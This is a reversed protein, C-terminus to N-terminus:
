TGRVRYHLAICASQKALQRLMWTLKHRIIYHNIFASNDSSKSDNLLNQQQIWSLNINLWMVVPLHCSIVLVCAQQLAYVDFGVWGLWQCLKYAGCVQVSVSRARSICCKGTLQLGIMMMMWSTWPSVVRSVFSWPGLLHWMNPLSALTLTATAPLTRQRVIQSVTGDEICTQCDHNHFAEDVSILVSRPRCYVNDSSM